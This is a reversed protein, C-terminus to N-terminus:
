RSAPALVTDITNFPGTFGDCANLLPVPSRLVVARSATFHLKVTGRVPLAAWHLSGQIGISCQWVASCRAM